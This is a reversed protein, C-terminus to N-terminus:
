HLLKLERKTLDQIATFYIALIYRFAKLKEM